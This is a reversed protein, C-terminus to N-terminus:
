WFRYWAKSAQEGNEGSRMQIFIELECQKQQPAVHLTLQHYDEDIIWELYKSNPYERYHQKRREIDYSAM